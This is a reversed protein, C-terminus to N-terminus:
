RERGFGKGSDTKRARALVACLAELEVPKAIYDDMGAELFNERDGRLAHATVAAVFLRACGPACQAGSAGPPRWATWAPCRSTWSCPAFAPQGAPGFGRPRRPPESPKAAWGSWSKITALRNPRRGGGRPRPPGRRFMGCAPCRDNEETGSPTRQAAPGKKRTSVAREPAMSGSAPSAPPRVPTSRRNEPKGVSQKLRVRVVIRTGRGEESELVMSGGMAEALRRVIPLGLGTGGANTPPTGPSASRNWSASGTGSPSARAPTRSWWISSRGAPTEDEPIRDLRVLVRGASTFKLANGVLNFLSRRVAGRGGRVWEPVGTSMELALDIGRTRAQPGFLGEVAALLGAPRFDEEILDIRGAEIKSFDLVEGIVTLLTRAADLASEVYHRHLPDLPESLLLQLMGVVGNLPTRIEHSMTALFM